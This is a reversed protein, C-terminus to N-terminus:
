HHYHDPPQIRTLTAGNLTRLPHVFGGRSFIPDVGEPVDVPADQYTLVERDGIHFVVKGDGEEALVGQNADATPDKALLAYTRQGAAPTQPLQWCLQKGDYQVPVDQSPQNTTEILSYNTERDLEIETCVPTQLRDFAGAHVVFTAVSRQSQASLPAFLLLFSSLLFRIDHM